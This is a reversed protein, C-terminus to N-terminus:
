FLPKRRPVGERRPFRDALIGSRVLVQLRPRQAIAASLELGLSRLGVESWRDPEPEPPESVVLRGGLCLFAAGCEATAAPPGFARAVVLDAGGRFREDRGLREAPGELVEVREGVDLAAVAWRLFECRRESVEVLWWRSSPWACALVLGPLGNGSGLDVAQRGQEPTEVALFGRAHRVHEDLDDGAGILGQRQARELM